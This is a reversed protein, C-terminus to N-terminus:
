RGSEDAGSRTDAEMRLLGRSLICDTLRMFAWSPSIVGVRSRPLERPLRRPKSPM